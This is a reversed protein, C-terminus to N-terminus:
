FLKGGHKFPRSRNKKLKDKVAKDIDIGLVNTLHLTRIIIDALEEQLQNLDGNRLAEVAESVETHILTLCTIINMEKLKELDTSVRFGKSLAELGCEKALENLM